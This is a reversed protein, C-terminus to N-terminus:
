QIYPLVADCNFLIYRHAKELSEEDFERAIAKGLPRGVASFIDLGKRPCSGIDENRGLKNFRTEVEDSLYMSCFDLCEQALYGEAISGEPRSRNRVYSKLICM